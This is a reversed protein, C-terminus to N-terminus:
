SLKQLITPLRILNLEHFLKNRMIASLEHFRKNCIHYDCMKVKRKANFPKCMNVFFM